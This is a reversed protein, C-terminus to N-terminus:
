KSVALRSTMGRPMFRMDFGDPNWNHLYDDLAASVRESKSMREVPRQHSDPQPRTRLEMKSDRKTGQQQGKKKESGAM